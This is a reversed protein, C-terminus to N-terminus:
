VPGFPPPPDLRWTGATHVHPYDTLHKRAPNTAIYALQHAYDDPGTIRHAHYSLQWVEGTYQKRIAFSSGGKILGAAKEITDAPTVLVHVHDPMVVFGHLLFKAQDRYRLLTAIMLGANATRQFVRHRQHTVITLAFTQPRLRM